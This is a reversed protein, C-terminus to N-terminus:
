PTSIASVRLDPLIFGRTPYIGAGYRRGPTYWVRVKSWDNAKSVDRVPTSIHIRGRNLWNAHEVVIERDNLIRTVVAVHGLRLRQTRAFALVSGVAPSSSKRYRGEASRWWTWADGWIAFGSAKRAYPVCQLPSSPHLIRAEHWEGAAVVDDAAYFNGTVTGDHEAPANKASLGPACAALALVIASATVVTKSRGVVSM